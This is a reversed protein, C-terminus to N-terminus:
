VSSSQYKCNASPSFKKPAGSRPKDDLTFAEKCWRKRWKFVWNLHKGLLRAAEPSTIGPKERLLLALKAREVKAHSENHQRVVENLLEVEQKSFKPNYQPKPGKM